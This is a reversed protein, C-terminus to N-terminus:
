RQPVTSRWFQSSCFVGEFFTQARQLDFAGPSLLFHLEKACSSSAPHVIQSDLLM